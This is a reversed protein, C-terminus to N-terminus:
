QPENPEAATVPAKQIYKAACKISKWIVFGWCLINACFIHLLREEFRITIQM